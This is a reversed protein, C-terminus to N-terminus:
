GAVCELVGLKKAVDNASQTLQDAREAQKQMEAQDNEGAAVALLSALEATQETLQVLEDHRKQLKAPPRLARLEDASQQMADRGAKMERELEKFDSFGGLADLKKEAEVCSANALRTYEARSLMENDDDGGGCGAAVTLLLLVALLRM